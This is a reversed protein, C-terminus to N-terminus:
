AASRETSRPQHADLAAESRGGVLRKAV